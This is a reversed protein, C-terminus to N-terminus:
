RQGALFATKQLAGTKYRTSIRNGWRNNIADAIPDVDLHRKYVIAGFASSDIMYIRDATCKSTRYIKLGFTTNVVGTRIPDTSGMKSNDIFNELTLLEAYIAPTTVLTDPHFNVTEMTGVMKAINALTVTGSITFTAGGAQDGVAIAAMVAVLDATKDEEIARGVEATQRMRFDFSFDEIAEKTWSPSAGHNNSPTITSYGYTEGTIPYTGSTLDGVTAAVPIPIVVSSQGEPCEVVTLIADCITFPEAKEWVKKIVYALANADATDLTAEKKLRNYFANDLTVTKANAKIVDEITYKKAM